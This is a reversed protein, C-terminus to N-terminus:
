SMMKKLDGEPVSIPTLNYNQVLYSLVNKSVFAPLSPGLYINKIGLSLLSLLISVAKQEYWSLVLSLPLENVGMDFAEALALAVKVASFADNCQGMDLLRPLGNISKLELDNFRFKGCGLTLVITNDPTLRVFERYYNRSPKVGDCGGVLFFHKISGAKVQDVIQGAAALVAQHGFGTLFSGDGQSKDYGGLEFARKIVPSFNKDSGIHTVGPYEAVSTTFVRDIYSPKPPMLCNTTFVVAGPIDALETQQNQWATGFNGKLHAYKKIGERAQAPLLEGHTYVDVGQGQTQRLILELDGLDHGSVV